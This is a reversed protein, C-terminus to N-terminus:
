KDDAPPAPMFFSETIHLYRRLLYRVGFAAAGLVLLVPVPLVPNIVKPVFFTLSLVVMAVVLLGVMYAVMKWMKPRKSKPLRMLDNMETFALGFVVSIVVMSLIGTAGTSNKAKAFYSMIGNMLTLIGLFMLGSDLSKQWFPTKKVPKPKHTIAYAKVTPGGYLKNAPTGRRQAKMIEPLILAMETDIKQESYGADSLSKRLQFVYDANRKSLGASIEQASMTDIQKDIEEQKSLHVVKEQQKEHAQANRERPDM